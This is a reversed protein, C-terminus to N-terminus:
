WFEPIFDLRWARLKPTEDNEVFSPGLGGRRTNRAPLWAATRVDLHYDKSLGTQCQQEHSVVRFM